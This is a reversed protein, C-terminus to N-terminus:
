LGLTNPNSGSPLWEELSCRRVAPECPREAVARCPPLSCSSKRTDRKTSRSIVNSMIIVRWKVRYFGQRFSLCYWFIHNRYIFKLLIDVISGYEGLNIKKFNFMTLEPSAWATCSGIEVLLFLFLFPSFSCSSSLFLHLCLNIVGSPNGNLSLSLSIGWLMM